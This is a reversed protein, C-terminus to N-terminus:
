PVWSWLEVTLFRMCLRLYAQGVTMEPGSIKAYGSMASRLSTEVNPVSAEVRIVGSDGATDGFAGAPQRETMTGFLRTPRDPASAGERIIGNSRSREPNTFISQQEIKAARQFTAGDRARKRRHTIGGDVSDAAAAAIATVRGVIERNSESWPRLRVQDGPKVLSIDSQAIEIEAEVVKTNDIRLFNDGASLWVGTLLQANPTTVFGARPARIATRELQGEDYDLQSRLSEVEAQAADHKLDNATVQALRAEADELNKRTLAVDRQQVTSSLHALVQGASVWD